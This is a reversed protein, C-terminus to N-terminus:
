VFVFIKNIEIAEKAPIFIVCISRLQLDTQQKNSHLGVLFNKEVCTLRIDESSGVGRM